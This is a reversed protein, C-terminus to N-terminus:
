HWRYCVLIRESSRSSHRHYDYHDCCDDYILRRYRCSGSGTGVRDSIRISIYLSCM